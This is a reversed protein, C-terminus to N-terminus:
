LPELHESVYPADESLSNGTEQRQRTLDGDILRMTTSKM